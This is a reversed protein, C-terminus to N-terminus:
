KNPNQSSSFNLIQERFSMNDVRRTNYLKQFEDNMPYVDNPGYPYRSMGHYPLPEVTKGHATNLDGDKIWGDGFILFDRTWGPKLKPAQNTDFEVTIEDGANMIVYKNDSQLLLPLVDGYRTYNGTLDRWKPEASVDSYEFWHPGYRGGKRYLRSFGRYHIDASTPRLTTQRIEVEPEDLTFFIHDWYIEMISRIRLRTDDSLFKGSLDVIVTKNKGMPFSLNPVVTQWKGKENIVQLYPFVAKLKNSQALAVNITADAPFIWGQLFLVVGDKKSLDGLDLILDHPETFGQYKAPILNSIFVDDKHQIAPLLNNGRDDIASVPIKKKSVTFIRLPPVPPPVFKEDIFVEVSAPHDLTVMRAKDFYATEWLEETIQVSYAGDKAKLM